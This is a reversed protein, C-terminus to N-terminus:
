IKLLALQEKIFFEKFEKPQDDSYSGDSLIEINNACNGDANRHFFVVQSKPKNTNQKDSSKKIRYRDITYDSHTEIIFSKNDEVASKYLLDGFAAQAKPHMHIEPQQIALWVFAEVAIIEVIVPLIQSIGYGVNTIKVPRNNLIVNLEFPSTKSKGLPVTEIKEFLGSDIGFRNIITEFHIRAKSRKNQRLFSKLLYPTHTGDPNYILQYNDYTRKPETRIPAIWIFPQLFLYNPIRKNGKVHNTVYFHINYLLPLSNHKDIRISKFPVDVVDGFEIWQEFNFKIDGNLFSEIGSTTIHYKINSGRKIAKFNSTRDVLRFTSIEPLGDDEEFRLLNFTYSDNKKSCIGIEFFDKDTIENFYGFEHGLTRFNDRLWFSPDSLVKIVRLVSTKGTSNEGVFFNIQQLGIFAKNFGRFNNLYLFKEM